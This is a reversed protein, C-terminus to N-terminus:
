PQSQIRAPLQWSISVRHRSRPARLGIPTPTFLRLPPPFCLSAGLQACTIHLRNRRCVIHLNPRLRVGLRRFVVEGLPVTLPELLLCPELEKSNISDTGPGSLQAGFLALAIPLCGSTEIADVELLKPERSPVRARKVDIKGIDEVSSQSPCTRGNHHMAAAGRDPAECHCIGGHLLDIEEGLSRQVLPLPPNFNVGKREPHSCGVHRRMGVALPVAIPLVQLLSVINKLVCANRWLDTNAAPLVDHVAGANVPAAIPSVGREPRRASCWRWFAHGQTWFQRKHV